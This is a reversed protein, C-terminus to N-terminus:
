IFSCDFSANFFFFFSLYSSYPVLLQSPDPSVLPGPVTEQTTPSSMLGRPWLVLVKNSGAIATAVSDANKGSGRAWIGVACCLSPWTANATM